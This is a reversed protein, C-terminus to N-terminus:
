LNCGPPNKFKAETGAGSSTNYRDKWWKAQGNLDSPIPKDVTTVKNTSRDYKYDKMKIELYLRCALANYLPKSLSEYPIKAWDLGLGRKIKAKADQLMKKRVWNGKPQKGEYGISTLATAKDLQFIGKTLNPKTYTGPNTGYCSEVAALRSMFTKVDNSDGFVISVAEIAKEVLKKANEGSLYEKYKAKDKSSEPNSRMADWEEDSIKAKTKISDLSSENIASENLFSRFNKINEM